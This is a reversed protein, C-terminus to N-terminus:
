RGGIPPATWGGTAMGSVVTVGARALDAALHFAFDLAAPSARRSGVVAVARGASELPMGRLWLVPPPDAVARLREPYGDDTVPMCVAGLSAAARLAAEAAAICPRALQQLVPDDVALRAVLDPYSRSPLLSLAVLRDLTM